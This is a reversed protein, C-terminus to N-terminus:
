PTHLMVVDGAVFILEPFLSDGNTLVSWESGGISGGSANITRANAVSDDFTINTGALLQRSNPFPISEDDDTIFSGNSLNTSAELILAAFRTRLDKNSKILEAIVQYLANNTQQIGSTILVALLRDLDIM